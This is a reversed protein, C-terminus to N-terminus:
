GIDLIFVQKILSFVFVLGFEAMFGNDLIWYFSMPLWLFQLRSLSKWFPVTKVFRNCVGKGFGETYAQNADAIFFAVQYFFFFFTLSDYLYLSFFFFFFFSLGKFQFSDFWLAKNRLHQLGQLHRKRVYPTDQFEKDCYDCYYKGLPM